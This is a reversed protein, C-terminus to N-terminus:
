RRFILPLVGFRDSDFPLGAIMRGCLQDAGEGFHIYRDKLRGLSQGMRLYVSVPTPGNVQGLAYSSSGKRLSHTGIDEPTCSLERLEEERLSGIVRRLLRGFRDKSDSGIFLQQKGGISREPCSFIHVALVLIACQSPQYPNAYVHKGFKNAGTQDGKHGQEEVVLCDEVWEM